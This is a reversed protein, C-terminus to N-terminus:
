QANSGDEQQQQMWLALLKSQENSRKKRAELESLQEGIQKTQERVQHELAQCSALAHELRGQTVSRAAESQQLTAQLAVVAEREARLRRESAQTAESRKDEYAQRIAMVEGEVYALAEDRKALESQLRSVEEDDRAAKARATALAEQLESALRRAAVLASSSASANAAARSQAKLTAAAALAEDRAAMFQECQASLTANVKQLSEVTGRLVITEAEAENKYATVQEKLRRAAENQDNIIADKVMVDSRLGDREAELSALQSKSRHLEARLSDVQGALLDAKHQLLQRAEEEAQLRVQLTTAHAKVAEAASAKGESAEALLQDKARLQTEFDERVQRLRAHAEDATRRLDEVAATRSERADKEAAALSAKAHELDSLAHGLDAQLHAMAAKVGANTAALTANEAESQSLQQQLQRRAADAEAVARAHAVAMDQKERREGDLSRISEALRAHLSECESSLSTVTRRQSRSGALLGEEGGASAGDATSSLGLDAAYQELTRKLRSVDRTLSINATSLADAEDSLRAVDRIATEARSKERRATSEADECRGELEFVRARLTSLADPAPAEDVQRRLNSAVAQIAAVKEEWKKQAAAAAKRAEDAENAAQAVAQATRSCEAALATELASASKRLTAAEQEAAARLQREMDLDHQLREFEASLPPSPVSAVAAPASETSTAESAVGAEQLPGQPQEQLQQSAAGTPLMAGVRAELAALRRRLNRNEIRLAAAPPVASSALAPDLPAAGTPPGADAKLIRVIAASISALAAKDRRLVGAADDSVYGADDADASADTDADATVGVGVEIRGGEDGESEETDREDAAYSAAAVYSDDGEAGIISADFLASLPKGTAVRLSASRAQPPSHLSGSAVTAATVAPAAPPTEKSGSAAPQSAARDAARGTSRGRSPRRQQQPPPLPQGMPGTAGDAAHTQLWLRQARDLAPTLSTNAGDTALADEKNADADAGGYINSVGGNSRVVAPPSPPRVSASISLLLKWQAMDLGDLEQLPSPPGSETQGSDGFSSGGFCGLPSGLPGPSPPLAIGFAEALVARAYPVLPRCVPNDNRSVIGGPLGDYPGGARGEFGAAPDAAAAHPALSIDQFRLSV